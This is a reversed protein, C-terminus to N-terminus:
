AQKNNNVSNNNGPISSHTTGVVPYNGNIRTSIELVFFIFVIICHTIIIIIISMMYFHYNLRICYRTVSDGRTM